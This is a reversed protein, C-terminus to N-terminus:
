SGCCNEINSRAFKRMGALSQRPPTASVSGPPPLGHVVREAPELGADELCEGVGRADGDHLQQAVALQGDGADELPQAALLRVDGLVRKGEVELIVNRGTPGLTVGVAKALKDAGALLKKRAEDTYLLQKAM